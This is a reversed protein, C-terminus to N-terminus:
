FDPAVCRKGWRARSLAGTCEASNQRMWRTRLGRTSRRHQSHRARSRAGVRVVGAHNVVCAKRGGVEACDPAGLDCDRFHRAPRLDNGADALALRPVAGFKRALVGVVVGRARPLGRAVRRRAGGAGDVEEAGGARRQLQQKTQVAGNRVQRGGKGAARQAGVNVRVAADGPPQEGGCGRADGGGRADSEASQVKKPPLGGRRAGERLLDRFVRKLSAGPLHPQEPESWLRRAEDGSKGDDIQRAGSRSPVSRHPLRLGAGEAADPLHTEGDVRPHLRECLKSSDRELARQLRVAHADLAGLPLLRGLLRCQEAEDDAVIQEPDAHERCPRAQPVCAGRRGAM